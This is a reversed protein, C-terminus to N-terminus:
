YEKYRELDVTSITLRRLQLLKVLLVELSHTKQPLMLLYRHSKLHARAMNNYDRASTFRSFVTLESKRDVKVFALGCHMEFSKIFRVLVLEIDDLLFRFVCVANFIPLDLEALLADACHNKLIVKLEVCWCSHAFYIL